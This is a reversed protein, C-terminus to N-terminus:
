KRGGRAGVLPAAGRGRDAGQPLMMSPQLWHRRTEWALQPWMHTKWASSFDSKGVLM